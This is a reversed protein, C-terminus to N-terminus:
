MSLEEIMRMLEQEGYILDCLDKLNKNLLLYIKVTFTKRTKIEHVLNSIITETSIATQRFESDEFDENIDRFNPFMTRYKLIHQKHEEIWDETIRGNDEIYEITDLIRSYNTAPSSYVDINEEDIEMNALEGDITM